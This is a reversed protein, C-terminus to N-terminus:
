LVSICWCYICEKVLEFFEIQFAVLLISFLFFDIGGILYGSLNRALVLKSFDFRNAERRSFLKM